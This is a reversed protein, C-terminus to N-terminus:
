RKRGCALPASQVALDKPLGWHIKDTVGGCIRVVLGQCGDPGAISLYSFIAGALASWNRSEAYVKGDTRLETDGMVSSNRELIVPGLILRGDVWSAPRM